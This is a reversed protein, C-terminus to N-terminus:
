GRSGPRPEPMTMRRSQCTDHMHDGKSRRIDRRGSGRTLRGPGPSVSPADKMDLGKVAPSSSLCTLIAM